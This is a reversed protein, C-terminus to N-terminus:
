RVRLRFKMSIAAQRLVIKLFHLPISLFILKIYDKYFLRDHLPFPSRPVPDEKLHMEFFYLLPM